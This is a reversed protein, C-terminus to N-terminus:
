PSPNGSGLSLMDTRVGPILPLTEGLFREYLTLAERCYNDVPVGNPMQPPAIDAASMLAVPKTVVISSGVAGKVRGFHVADDRYKIAEDMWGHIATAIARHLAAKGPFDAQRELWQLAHGGRIDKGEVTTRNFGDLPPKRSPKIMLSILKAYVDLGSKLSLLATSLGAHYSMNRFYVKPSIDGINDIDVMRMSALFPEFDAAVEAAILDCAYGFLALQDAAAQVLSLHQQPFSNPNFFKSADWTYDSSFEAVVRPLEGRFQHGPNTVTVQM